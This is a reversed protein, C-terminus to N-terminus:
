AKRSLLAAGLATAYESDKLIIFNKGFKKSYYALRQRIPKLLPVRGTLIIDRDRGVAQVGLTQACHAQVCLAAIVEAVMNFLGALLDQKKWSDMKAFNAATVDQALVGLRAGVIDGVTLDVARANGKLAEQVLLEMKSTGAILHGLGLLTGGGVGTGGLHSVKKADSYTLCTGTGCSVVLGKKKKALFLGGANIAEIEGVRKLGKMPSGGTTVIQRIPYRHALDELIKDSKQSGPILKKFVLDRGQILVVKTSSYGRDIGLIM